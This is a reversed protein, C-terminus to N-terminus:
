GRPFLPSLPQPCVQTCVPAHSDTEVCATTVLVHPNFSEGPIEDINWISKLQQIIEYRQPFALTWPKATDSLIM